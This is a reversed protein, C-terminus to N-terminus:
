AWQLRVSKVVSLIGCLRYLDNLEEIDVIRCHASVEDMMFRFIKKEEGNNEHV